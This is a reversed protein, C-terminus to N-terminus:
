LLAAVIAIQVVSVIATLAFLDTAERRPTREPVRLLGWVCVAGAAVAEVAVLILARWPELPEGVLATVVPWPVDFLALAAAGVCLYLIVLALVAGLWFRALLSKVATGILILLKLLELFM